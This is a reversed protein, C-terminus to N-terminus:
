TNKLSILPPLLGNWRNKPRFYGYQSYFLWILESRSMWALHRSEICCKKLQFFNSIMNFGHNETELFHIKALFNNTDFNQPRIKRWFIMVLPSEQTQISILRFYYWIPVKSWRTIGFLRSFSNNGGVWIVWFYRLFM